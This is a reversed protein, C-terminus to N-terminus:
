QESEKRALAARLAALVVERFTTRERVARIKLREYMERPLAITTVVVAGAERSARKQKPAV